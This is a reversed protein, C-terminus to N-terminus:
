TRRLLDEEETWPRSACVRRPQLSMGGVVLTQLLLPRDKEERIGEKALRDGGEGGRGGARVWIAAPILPHAAGGSQFPFHTQSLHSVFCLRFFLGSYVFCARKVM